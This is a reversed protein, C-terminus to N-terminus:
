SEKVDLLYCAVRHALHSRLADAAFRRVAGSYQHCHKARLASTEIPVVRLRERRPGNVLAIRACAPGFAAGLAAALTSEGAGM